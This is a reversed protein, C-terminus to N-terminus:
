LAEYRSRRTNMDMETGGREPQHPSTAKDIRIIPLNFALITEVLDPWTCEAGGDFCDYLVGLVEWRWMKARQYGAALIDNKRKPGSASEHAIPFRRHVEYYTYSTCVKRVDETQKPALKPCRVAQELSTEIVLLFGIIRPQQCLVDIIM